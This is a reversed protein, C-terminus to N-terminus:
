SPNSSSNCWSSNTSQALAFVMKLGLVSSNMPESIKKKETYLWFVIVIIYSSFTSKIIRQTWKSLRMLLVWLVTYNFSSHMLSPITYHCWPFYIKFPPSRFTYQLWFWSSCHHTLKLICWHSPQAVTPFFFSDYCWVDMLHFVIIHTSLAM